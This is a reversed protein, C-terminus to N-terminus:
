VQEQLAEEPVEKKAKEQLAPNSMRIMIVAASIVTLLGTVLVPVQLGLMDALIGTMLAGFAYGLDQWFRFIGLSKARDLPHTFSAITALFTPYVLAKGFGLVVALALYHMFTGAFLLLLIVTGQLLMGSYLMRKKSFHDAMKGTFLQGIGWVAPYAAAVMGIEELEFGKSALIMPLLGWMMGDNLNNILGAQTVSVLNRNKWSTEMFVNKLRPTLSSVSEEQVHPQTEKVLLLSAFFGTFVLITGLYFPYPRLGYEAAIYATFFAMLAVSSYGAFENLGMALGRQKVRALDLKMMITSSWALGQNMGLLMNAVIIWNWSDAFMLIFPVPIGILWGLVLLKKKGIKNALTGTLFNSCAKFIGFVMIFSLIATKAEMNFESQALKPLISREMGVISGVFGTIIVLLFFQQWNEKVGHKIKRKTNDMKM